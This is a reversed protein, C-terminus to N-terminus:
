PSISVIGTVTDRLEGYAVLVIGWLVAFLGGQLVPSGM